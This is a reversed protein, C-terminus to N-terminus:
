ELFRELERKFEERTPIEGFFITEDNIAISPTSVVQYMLAEEPNDEIFVERLEVGNFEKLVEKVVEEAKPCKPCNRSKFFTVVVKNENM